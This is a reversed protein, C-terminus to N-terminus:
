ALREVIEDFVAGYIWHAVLMTAPRLPRDHKPRPMIGAAPVLGQYAGAWIASSQKIASRKTRDAVGLERLVAMAAGVVAGFGFHAAITAAALAEKSPRVGLKHLTAKTIKRPPLEGLGGVAHSAKMFATMAATAGIGALAGRGAAKVYDNM